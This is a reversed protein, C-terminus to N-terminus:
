VGPRSLCLSAHLRVLNVLEEGGVECVVEDAVDGCSVAHAAGGDDSVGGATAKGLAGIVAPDLVLQARGSGEVGIPRGEGGNAGM